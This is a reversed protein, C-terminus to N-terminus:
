AAELKLRYPDSISYEGFRKLLELEDTENLDERTLIDQIAPQQLGPIRVAFFPWLRESEYVKTKDPFDIIPRYKNGHQFQPSYEFRWIGDAFSLHGVINNDIALAFQVFSDRKPKLDRTDEPKIARSVWDRIDQFRDRRNM